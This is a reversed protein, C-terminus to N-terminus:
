KSKSCSFWSLLSQLAAPAFELDNLGEWFNPMMHMSNNRDKCIIETQQAVETDAQWCSNSCVTEVSKMM